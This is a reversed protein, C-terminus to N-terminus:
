THRVRRIWRTERKGGAMVRERRFGCQLLIDSMSQTSTSIDSGLTGDQVRDRLLKLQSDFDVKSAGELRDQFYEYAEKQTSYQYDYRLEEIEARLSIDPRISLGSEVQDQYISLAESWLQERHTRMYSIVDVERDTNNLEVPIYRRNGTVDNPLFSRENSTGVLIWRRHIESTYKAYSLRVKDVQRSVFAKMYDQGGSRKSGLMEQSECLVTGLTSEVLQKYDDSFNISDSFWQSRYSEPFMHSLLTSKGLGQRGILIPVEDLKAGPQKARLVCGLFLFKSAWAKIGTHEGGFLTTLLCDLRETNDWEPLSRLWDLFPDIQTQVSLSNVVQRWENDQWSLPYVKSNGALYTYEEKLKERLYDARHDSLSEWKDGGKQLTEPQEARANYRFRYGFSLLSERLTLSNKNQYDAKERIQTAKRIASTKTKEIETSGLGNQRAQECASNVGQQDGALYCKLVKSYLDNNRHGANQNITTTKKDKKHKDKDVSHKTHWSSISVLEARNSDLQSSEFEILSQYYERDKLHIHGKDYRHEGVFGCKSWHSSQPLQYLSDSDRNWQTTQTPLWIHYRGQTSSPRVLVDVGISEKLDEILSTLNNEAQEPQGTYDDVDLVFMGISSPVVCVTKGGKYQADVQKTNARTNLDAVKDKWSLMFHGREVAHLLTLGTGNIESM